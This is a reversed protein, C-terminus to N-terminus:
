GRLIAVVLAASGVVLLWFALRVSFRCGPAMLNLVSESRWFIAAAFLAGLIQLAIHMM